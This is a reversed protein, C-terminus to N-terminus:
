INDRENNETGYVRRANKQHFIHFVRRYRVGHKCSEYVHGVNNEATDHVAVHSKVIPVESVHEGSCVYTGKAEKHNREDCYQWSTSLPM